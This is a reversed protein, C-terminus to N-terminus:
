VACFTADCGVPQQIQTSCGALAFLVCAILLLVCVAEIVKSENATVPSDFM